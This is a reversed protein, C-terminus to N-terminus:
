FIGPIFGLFGILSLVKQVVRTYEETRSGETGRSPKVEHSQCKKPIKM